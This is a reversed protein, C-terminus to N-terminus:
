AKNAQAIGGQHPHIPQQFYMTSKDDELVPTDIPTHPAQRKYVAPSPGSAVSPDFAFPDEVFGNCFPNSLGQPITASNPLSIPLRQQQPHSGDPIGMQQQDPRLKFAKRPSVAPSIPRDISLTSM